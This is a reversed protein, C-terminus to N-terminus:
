LPNRPTTLWLHSKVCLFCIGFLHILSLYILDGQSYSYAPVQDARRWAKRSRGEQYSDQHTYLSSEYPNEITKNTLVSISISKCFLLYFFLSICDSVKCFSTGFQRHHVLQKSCASEHDDKTCHHMLNCWILLLSSQHSAQM